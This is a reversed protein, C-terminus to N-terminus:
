TAGNIGNMGTIRIEVPNFTLRVINLFVRINRACLVPVVLGPVPKDTQQPVAIYGIKVGNIRDDPLIFLQSVDVYDPIEVPGAVRLTLHDPHPGTDGSM